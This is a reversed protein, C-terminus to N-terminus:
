NLRRCANTPVNGSWIRNKMKMQLKRIEDRAQRDNIKKNRYDEKIVDIAERVEGSYTNHNSSHFVKMGKGVDDQMAKKSGPIHIGNEVSNMRGGIGIKDLFKQNEKRIEVPIVHHASLRDYKRGAM